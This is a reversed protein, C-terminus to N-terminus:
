NADWGGGLAKFLNVVAINQQKKTVSENIQVSLLNNQQNLLELYNSYGNDYRAETLKYAKQSAMLEAQNAAYEVEYTKIAALSNDVEAFANLVVKQYQFSLQEARQKQIVVRNKNKGFEFIPGFLGGTVGMALSGPDLLNNLQPSVVGLFSTLQISPFRMATAVGIMETQAILNQEAVVIDNRRRVLDSTLGVPIQAPLQQNYNDNGRVIKGPPLGTLIRLANQVSIIQRELNPVMAEVQSLQQQAQLQDLESVYGKEFRHTIVELSKKRIDVTAKAIELRNDLDRLNFYLTATEAILSVKLAQANNAAALVSAMSARKQHRLKGFLDIEWSFTATAKFMDNNQGPNPLLANKGYQNSRASLAYGLSPFVVSRDIGYQARAEDIRSLATLLDFNSSLVTRILSTLEPDKYIETWAVLASTDTKAAMSDLNATELKPTKPQKYKPGVLCGTLSIFGTILIIAIAQWDPKIKFAKM